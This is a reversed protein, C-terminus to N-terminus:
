FEIYDCSEIMHSQPYVVQHKYRGDHWQEWFRRQTEHTVWGLRNWDREGACWVQELFYIFM